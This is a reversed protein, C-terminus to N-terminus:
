VSKKIQDENFDKLIKEAEKLINENYKYTKGKINIKFMIDYLTVMVELFHKTQEYKKNLEKLIDNETDMDNYLGSLIGNYIMNQLNKNIKKDHFVKELNMTHQLHLVCNSWDIFAQESNEIGFSSLWEKVTHQEKKNFSCVNPQVIYQLDIIDGSIKNGRSIRGLPFLACVSPKYEHVKCKYLNDKFKLFPCFTYNIGEKFKITVVPLNSTEGLYVNCYKKLLELSSM